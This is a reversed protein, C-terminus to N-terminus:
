EGIDVGPAVDVDIGQSALLARHEDTIAEGYPREPPADAMYDSAQESQTRAMWEEQDNSKMGDDVM